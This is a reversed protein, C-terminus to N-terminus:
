HINVSPWPVLHRLIMASFKLTYPARVDCASSLRVPSLMIAVLFEDREVQKLIIQTFLLANFVFRLGLNM